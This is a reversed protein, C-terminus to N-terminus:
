THVETTHFVQREIRKAKLLLPCMRGTQRCRGSESMEGGCCGDREIRRQIQDQSWLVFAHMEVNTLPRAPDGIMLERCTPDAFVQRGLELLEVRNM